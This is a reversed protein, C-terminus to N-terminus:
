PRPRTGEKLFKLQDPAFRFASTIVAHHGHGLNLPISEDRPCGFEWVLEKGHTVEFLRGGQPDVILINGNPLYQKMGRFEAHFKTSGENAYWWPVANTKPDFEVVRTGHLGGSNDYLLINGNAVFEPDHQQKWIGIASWVISRKPIDLVAILNFKRFSLLVQGPQFQPFKAALAPNLVKVANAHLIDGLESTAQYAPTRGSDPHDQGLPIEAGPIDMEAHKGQMARLNLAFPSDRFAELLSIKHLEKGEPSLVVLYDALYPTPLYDMGAPKDKHLEHTLVYITGDAGVNLDHHAHAAYTWLLNSNKDLKALGYGTPTDSTTQYIALLDGNPYLHTRFWHIKDDALPRRIHTPNPWAKSFPLSWRYVVNGSMDLLRAASEQTTTYLTFGNFAQDPKDCTIGPKTDNDQPEPQEEGHKRLADLGVFSERLFQAPLLEFHLAAAGAVFSLFM